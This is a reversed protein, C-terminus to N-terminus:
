SCLPPHPARAKTRYNGEGPAGDKGHHGNLAPTRARGIAGVALGVHRERGVAVDAGPEDGAGEVVGARGVLVSEDRAQAVGRSRARACRLPAESRGVVAGDVDAAGDFRAPVDAGVGGADQVDLAPAAVVEQEAHAVRDGHGDVALPDVRTLLRTGLLVVVIEQREVERGAVVGDHEGQV